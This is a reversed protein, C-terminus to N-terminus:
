RRSNSTPRPRRRKPRTAITGVAIDTDLAHSMGKAGSPFGVIFLLLYVIRAWNMRMGMLVIVVALISVIFVVTGVVIPAPAAATLEAWGRWLRFVGLAITISASTVMVLGLLVISSALILLPGDLVPGRTRVPDEASMTLSASM